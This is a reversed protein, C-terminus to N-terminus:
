SVTAPVDRPTSRRSYSAQFSRTGRISFATPPAVGPAIIDAKRADAINVLFLPVPGRSSPLCIPEHDCRLKAEAWEFKVELKSVQKELVDLRDRLDIVVEEYASLIDDKTIKGSKEDELKEMREVIKKTRNEEM